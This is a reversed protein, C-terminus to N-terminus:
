EPAPQCAPCSVALARGSARTFGLVAGPDPGHLLLPTSLRLVDLCEDLAIGAALAWPCSLSKETL